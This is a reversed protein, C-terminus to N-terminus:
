YHHQVEPGEDSKIIEKNRLENSGATEEQLYNKMRVAVPPLITPQLSRQWTQTPLNQFSLEPNIFTLTEQCRCM